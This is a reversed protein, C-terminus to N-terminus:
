GELEKIRLIARQTILKLQEHQEVLSSITQKAKEMIKNGRSTEVLLRWKGWVKMIFVQKSELETFKGTEQGSVPIASASPGGGIMGFVNELFDNVKQIVENAYMEQLTQLHMFISQQFLAVLTYKEEEAKDMPKQAVLTKERWTEVVQRHLSLLTAIIAAAESGDQLTALSEIADSLAEGNMKLEDGGQESEIEKKGRGVEPSSFDVEDQSPEEGVTDQDTLPQSCKM